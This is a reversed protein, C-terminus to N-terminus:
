STKKYVSWLVRNWGPHHTGAEDDSAFGEHTLDLYSTKGGEGWPGFEMTVLTTSTSEWTFTIKKDKVIERFEGSITNGNALDCKYHGGVRFDITANKGSAGFNTFLRMGSCAEFLKEVPTLFERSFHLRRKVVENDMGQLGGTWGGEHQEAMGRDDGFGEHTLTVACRNGEGALEITVRTNFGSGEPIWTFAVRKNAVIELFEGSIMGHHAFNLLYRGGVRFDIETKEPWAGCNFFLRGEGIASFVKERPSSFEHKVLVVNNKEVSM